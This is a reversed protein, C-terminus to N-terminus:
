YRRELVVAGIEPLNIIDGSYIVADYGGNTQNPEWEVQYDPWSSNFIEKYATSPLGLWATNQRTDSTGFTCIVFCSGWGRTFAITKYGTKVAQNDDGQFGKHSDKRLGILHQFWLLVRSHNIDTEYYDLRLMTTQDFSFSLDEGAEQGMFLMPIGKALLAATGIAKSMRLGHQWPARRSIRYRENQGSASDHSEGYRVAEHFSRSQIHPWNMERLIDSANDEADRAANNLTYHHAFHWQGDLVAGPATAPWNNPDIEGVLYPWPQGIATAAQRVATQLSRLFDWGGGSGTRWNGNDNRVIYQLPWQGDIIGRACDFRFGDLRFTLFLYVLAQRFYEVTEPNDFNVMDGWETEGDAYTDRAIQQLPSDTIHNYVVDILIAKGADHSARVFAAFEEPGGYTSEIAFYLSSNYGWSNDGPFENLPLLELATVGLNSLYQDPKLERVLQDFASQSGVNRDTFRSAHMEYILLAEWGMTKWPSSQLHDQIVQVNMALSWAQQLLAEVTLEPVQHWIPQLYFQTGQPHWVWRAAPDIVEQTENLQFRYYDGHSVASSPVTCWWYRLDPTLTMPYREIPQATSSSTNKRLLLLNASVAHPACLVFWVLTSTFTCGLPMEWLSFVQQQVIHPDFAASLLAQRQDPSVEKLTTATESCGSIGDMTYLNITATDQPTFFRRNSPLPKGLRAEKLGNPLQFEMWQQVLPFADLEVYWTGDPQKHATTQEHANADGVGVRLSLTTGIQSTPNPLITLKAKVRRPIPQSFWQHNGLLAYSPATSDTESRLRFPRNFSEGDFGVSYNIDCYVNIQFQSQIFIPDPISYQPSAPQPTIRENDDGDYIILQPSVQQPHSLVFTTPAFQLPQSRVDFRDGRTWIQSGDSPKWIRNARDPEWRQDRTKLKFYFGSKMWPELPLEFSSLHTSEDRSQENFFRVNTHDTSWVYVQGGAYKSLTVVHLTITNIGNNSGPANTLCRATFPFTWLERTESTPIQRTFDDREWSGDPFQYKFNLTRPDELDPASILFRLSGDTPDATGLINWVKGGPEWAHLKIQSPNPTSNTPFYHIIIDM